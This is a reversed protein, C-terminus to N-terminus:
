LPSETNNAIMLLVLVTKVDNAVVHKEELKRLGKGERLLGVM